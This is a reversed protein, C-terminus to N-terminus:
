SASALGNSDVSYDENITSEVDEFTASMEEDNVTVVETWDLKNTSVAHTDTEIFGDTTGALLGTIARDSKQYIFFVEM